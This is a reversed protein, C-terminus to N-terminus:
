REGEGVPCEPRGAPRSPSSTAALVATLPLPMRDLDLSLVLLHAYRLKRRAGAGLWRHMQAEFDAQRWAPQQGLTQFSGLDGQADLLAEIAVQDSARILEDELDEDCVFFGLSEMEIRNQAPGFGGAALGRRFFEEEAADCMGVVALGAGERGFRAFYRAVAHAGGIPVIVIGEADLDRGQRRALTELALQDSIGEVLVVTQASEARALAAATAGVTADPGSIWGDLVERALRDRREGDM